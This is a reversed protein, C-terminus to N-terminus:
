IIAVSFRGGKFFRKNLTSELAVFYIRMKAAIGLPTKVVLCNKNKIGIKSMAKVFPMKSPKGVQIM